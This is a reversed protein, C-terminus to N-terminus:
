KKIEKRIAKAITTRLHEGEVELVVGVLEAAREMGADFHTDLEKKEARLRDGREGAKLREIEVRSSALAEATVRDIRTLREIERDRDILVEALISMAPNPTKTM